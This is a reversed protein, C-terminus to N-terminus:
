TATRRVPRVAEMYLSDPKVPRGKTNTDLQLEAWGPIRSEGAEKRVPDTFGAARLVQALSYQDYMWQHVHGEVRVAGVSFIEAGRKGLFIRAAIQRYLGVLRGPVNRIRASWPRRKAGLRASEPDRLGRILGEGEDGIRHLIFEPNHLTEAAIYDRMGGGSKNRVAQDFLELMIWDYDHAAAKDGASALELKELYIRCITELDPVAVRITGGPQLVRFCESLFEGAEERPIHELVHSHYVIEASEDPLPIGRSLDHAIVSEGTSVIDINVWSPDFRAGCGLNVRYPRPLNTSIV